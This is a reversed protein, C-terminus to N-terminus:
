TRSSRRGGLVIATYKALRLGSGHLLRTEAEGILGFIRIGVAYIVMAAALFALLPLPHAAMSRLPLLILILLAAACCRVLYLWPLIGSGLTRAYARFFLPTVLVLTGLVALVAGTIGFRPILLFDLLINVGAQLVAIWFAVWPKGLAYTGVVLGTTLFFLTQVGFFAQAITGAAALQPGYIVQVLKDGCMMGIVAIPVVHIFLVKYFTEIGRRLKEVGGEAIKSLTAIAVPYVAQNLSMLAFFPLSYGIDYLAVEHMTGYRGLFFIESQKLVVQNVLGKAMFALSYALMGGPLALAFPRSRFGAEDLHTASALLWGSLVILAAIQLFLVGRLSVGSRSLVLLGLLWIVSFCLNASVIAGGRGAAIRLNQLDLRLVTLLAIAVCILLYPSLNVRYARELTSAAAHATTAVAIGIAVQGVFTVLLLALTRSGEHREVSAFRLLGNSLGADCVVVAYSILIALFAYLGYSEPPLSRAIIVTGLFSSLLFAGRAAANWTSTALFMRSVSPISPKAAGATDIV